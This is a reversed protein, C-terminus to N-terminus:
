CKSISGLNHASYKTHCLSVPIDSSLDSDMTQQPRWLLIGGALHSLCCCDIKGVTRSTQFVLTDAPKTEESAERRPRKTMDGRLGKELNNM